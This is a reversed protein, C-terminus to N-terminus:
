VLAPTPVGLAGLRSAGGDLATLVWVGRATIATTHEFHATASGDVTVVTWDDELVSVEHRGLSLMPEVALAMGEVLRPGRGPRGYNLLHPEQHMETGIGHGGFDEVIGYPGHARVSTEVAHSVDSLRAGARVAAIGAWMADETATLLDSVEQPVEGVPVGRDGDGHWGALVAGCDIGVVDGEDLVRPGPIGHVVEANVSACITAPFGQYGLFSPVAGHDRIHEEALRDLEGTTVGPAVAARLLELTRGVVLGAERMLAVEEPSKVQIGRHRRVGSV